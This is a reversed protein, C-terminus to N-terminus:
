EVTTTVVWGWYELDRLRSEKARRALATHEKAKPLKDLRACNSKRQPGGFPADCPSWICMRNSFVDSIRSPVGCCTKM